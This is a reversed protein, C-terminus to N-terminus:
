TPDQFEANGKRSRVRMADPGNKRKWGGARSFVLGKRMYEPELIRSSLSKHRIVIEHCIWAVVISPSVLRFPPLHEHVERGVSVDVAQAKLAGEICEFGKVASVESVAEDSAIRLQSVLIIKTPVLISSNRPLRKLVSHCNVTTRGQSNGIRAIDSCASCAKYGSLESELVASDHGTDKLQGGIDNDSPDRSFVIVTNAYLVKEGAPVQNSQEVRVFGTDASGPQFRLPYQDIEQVRPNVRAIWKWHSTRTVM